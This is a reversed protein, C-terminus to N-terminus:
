RQASLSRKVSGQKCPEASVVHLFTRQDQILYGSEKHFLGEQMSKYKECAKEFRLLALAANLPGRMHTPKPPPASKAAAAEEQDLFTTLPERVFCSVMKDMDIHCVPVDHSSQRSFCPLSVGGEETSQRSFDAGGDFFCHGLVAKDQPEASLTITSVASAAAPQALRRAKAEARARQSTGPRLEARCHAFKCGPGEACSGNRVFTACLRTRFFDPQPRLEDNGHAFQCEKGRSCNGTSYFRCVRTNRFAAM